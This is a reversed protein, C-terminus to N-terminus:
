EIDLLDYISEKEDENLSYLKETKKSLEEQKLIIDKQGRGTIKNRQKFEEVLSRALPDGILYLELFFRILKAPHKINESRLSLMMEGYEYDSFNIIMRKQYKDSLTKETM